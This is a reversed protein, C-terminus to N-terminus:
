GTIPHAPLDKAGTIGEKRCSTVLMSKWVLCQKEQAQTPLYLEGTIGEKRCGHSWCAKGFWVNKDLSQTPLYLEGTIGEKRYFKVLINGFWAFM